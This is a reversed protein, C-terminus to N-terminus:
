MAYKVKGFLLLYLINLLVIRTAKMVVWNTKFKVLGIQKESAKM